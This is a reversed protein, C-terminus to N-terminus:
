DRRARTLRMVANHASDYLLNGRLRGGVGMVALITVGFDLIYVADLTSFWVECNAFRERGASLVVQSRVAVISLIKKSLGHNAPFRFLTVPPHGRKALLVREGTAFYIESECGTAASIPLASEVVKAFTGNAMFRYIRAPPGGGYVLFSRPVDHRIQYPGGPSSLVQGFRLDSVPLTAIEHLRNDPAIAGLKRGWIVFIASDVILFDSLGPPDDRLLTGGGSPRIGVLNENTRAVLGRGDKDRWEEVATDPALSLGSRGSTLVEGLAITDLTFDPHAVYRHATPPFIYEFALWGAAVALGM